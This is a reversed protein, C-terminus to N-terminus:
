EESIQQERALLLFQASTASRRVLHQSWAEQEAKIAAREAASYLEAGRADVGGSIHTGLANVFELSHFRRTPREAAEARREPRRTPTPAQMGSAGPADAADGAGSVARGTTGPVARETTGPVARGIAGPVARGTTGPLAVPALPQSLRFMTDPRQKPHTAALIAAAAAPEYPREVVVVAGARAGDQAGRQRSATPLRSPQASSTASVVAREARNLLSSSNGHQSLSTRNLATALAAAAAADEGDLALRPAPATTPTPARRWSTPPSPPGDAGVVAGELHQHHLAIAGRRRPPPLMLSSPGGYPGGGGLNPVGSPVVSAHALQVSYEAAHRHPLPSPRLATTLVQMCPPPNETPIATSPLTGATLTRTPSLSLTLTLSLSLTLSLTLSLLLSLTRTPTLSLSLTLSLTLSLLLSLTRTPTLTLRLSLTCARIAM